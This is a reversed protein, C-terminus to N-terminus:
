GAREIKAVSLGRKSSNLGRLKLLSDLLVGTSSHARRIRRSGSQVEEASNASLDDIMESLQSELQENTASM